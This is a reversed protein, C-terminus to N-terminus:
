CHKCNHINPHESLVTHPIEGHAVLLIPCDYQLLQQQTIINSNHYHLSRNVCAISKVYSTITGIDHSVMIIAMNENLKKLLEYLEKEFKNDVYSNPEDLILLKPNSIIARCLLARQLEGGSIESTSRKELHKIGCLELTKAVLERDATSYRGFLGKHSQLGSLVVENVSIPFARDITSYQPLYGIKGKISDHLVVEGNVPQVQNLILKILTTKGGGNPGIVGIFDRENVSFNVSCLVTKDGYAASCNKINILQM